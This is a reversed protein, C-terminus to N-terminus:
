RLTEAEPEFADLPLLVEFTTGQGEVSEARIAGGHRRVINFSTSLGLGTGVGVEKTTFFPDFIRDLADPAIGTGNDKVLIAVANERLETRLHIEGRVEDGAGRAEIAQYANVILNMFVQKLQMPFCHVPPLEDYQKTLSVSHKMMTWVINATSDLCQNLDSEVLEATDQHSFARLDQVIHRIRESGELSERVAKGFDSILFDAEVKEIVADLESTARQIEEPVSPEPPHVEEVAKRLTEMKEWVKALDDLYESMQCLNAHIFGMPNNIEHAVGAALQGISAMKETQLVQRQLQKIETLDQFIAVAGLPTGDRDSMPACSIGIPIIRGSPRTLVTEAGRFRANERLTRFILAEERPANPFWDWVQRGRLGGPEADLIHEATPNGYTVRGERDVVLLASNMNQIINENYRQLDAVQKALLEVETLDSLVLLLRGEDLRKARVDFARMGGDDDIVRAIRPAVSRGAAVASLVEGVGASELFDPPLVRELPRGDVQEISRGWIRSFEPNVTVVNGRADLVLLAAPIENVIAEHLHELWRIRREAEGRERAARWRRIQELAVVPLMEEYDPTAAICDAAGRRFADLALEEDLETTVVIVPPGEGRLEALVEHAEEAGVQEELIVLDLVDRAALECCSAAEHLVELTVERGLRDLASVTGLDRRASGPRPQLVAIRVLPSSQSLPKGEELEAGAARGEIDM